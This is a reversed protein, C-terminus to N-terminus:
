LSEDGRAKVYVLAFHSGSGTPKIAVIHQKYKNGAKLEVGEGHGKGCSLRDSKDSKDIQVDGGQYGQCTLVEGYQKLQDRYYSLVKDYPDNSEFEVAVVKIGFMPSNINVNASKEEGARKEAPKAGPYVPLGTDKVDAQENVKISGFPTQIDVKKAEGERSEHVSCGALLLAGAAAALLLSNPLFRFQNM